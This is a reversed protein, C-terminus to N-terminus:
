SFMDLYGNMYDKEGDYVFIALYCLLPLILLYARKGTLKLKESLKIIGWATVISIWPILPILHRPFHDFEFVIFYINLLFPLIIVILIPFVLKFGNHIMKKIVYLVSVCFIIAVPFSVVTPFEILYFLASTLRNFQQVSSIGSRLTDLIEQPSYSLFNVLVFGVISFGIALILREFRPKKLLSVVILSPLYFIQLKLGISVGFCFGAAMLFISTVKDKNDMDLFLLYTGLLAWFIAPVDSVFFHSESVHLGGLAFIWTALLAIRADKTLYKALLFVMLISITGYIVSVVRGITIIGAPTILSPYLQNNIRHLIKLPVAVHAAMGKPYPNPDWRPPSNPNLLIETNVLHTYEDPHHGYWGTPFNYGWLVGPSRVLLGILLAGALLFLHIPKINFRFIFKGILMKYVM